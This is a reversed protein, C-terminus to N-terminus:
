SSEDITTRGSDRGAESIYLLPNVALPSNQHVIYPKEPFVDPLYSKFTSRTPAIWIGDEYHAIRKLEGKTFFQEMEKSAKYGLYGHVIKKTEVLNEKDRFLQM